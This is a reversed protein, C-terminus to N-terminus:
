DPLDRYLPPRSASASKLTVRMPPICGALTTLAVVPMPTSRLVGLLRQGLRRHPLSQCVKSGCSKNRPLGSCTAGSGPVARLSTPSHTDRVDPTCHVLTEGKPFAHQCLGTRHSRTCHGLRLFPVCVCRVGLLSCACM